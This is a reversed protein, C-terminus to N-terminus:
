KKAPRKFASILSSSYEQWFSGLFTPAFSLAARQSIAGFKNAPGPEWPYQSYAGAYAGVLRDLAPMRGYERRFDEATASQDAENALSLVNSKSYAVVGSPGMIPWLGPRSHRVTVSDVLAHWFRQKKTCRFTQFDSSDRAYMLPDRDCTVHRPDDKIASGITLQAAASGVSQSYSAGVRLWYYHFTGPWEPPSRIASTFLSGTLSLVMAQDTLGTTVFQTARMRNTYRCNIVTLDSPFGGPCTFLYDSTPTSPPALQASCSLGMLLLLVSAFEAIGRM